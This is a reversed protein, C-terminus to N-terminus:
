ARQMVLLKLEDRIAPTLIEGAREAFTALEYGLTGLDAQRNTLACILSGDKIGTIFLWGNQMEVIVNVVPGAGFRGASGYSLGIMGSAVASLREATERDVGESVALSLGDSSVVVAKEVSPVQEAFRNLLWNFNELTSANTTTSM